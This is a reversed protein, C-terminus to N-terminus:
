RPLSRVRRRLPHITYATLSRLNIGAWVFAAVSVLRSLVRSFYAKSGLYRREKRRRRMGGDLGVEGMEMDGDGQFFMEQDRAVGKM